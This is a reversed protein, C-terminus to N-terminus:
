RMRANGSSYYGVGTVLAGDGSHFVAASAALVGKGPTAGDPHAGAAAVKGPRRGATGRAHLHLGRRGPPQRRAAGVVGGRSSSTRHGHTPTGVRYWPM